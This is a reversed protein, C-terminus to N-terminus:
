SKKPKRKVVCQLNRRINRMKQNRRVPAGGAVPAKVLAGSPDVWSATVGDRTIGATRGDPALQRPQEGTDPDVACVAGGCQFVITSASAPAATLLLLCVALLIRGGM